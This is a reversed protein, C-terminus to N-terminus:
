FDSNSLNKRKSPLSFYFTSGMGTESEVWISGGHRDVIRRCIALGIGTGPYEERTHLRKFIEFIKDTYEPGIGIGNDKVSIIWWIGRQEASITIELPVQRRFKIANSILNQFVRVLQTRDVPLVPLDTVTIHAKSEEISVGLNKRAALVIENLDAPEFPKAQSTVRSFELLDNILANMTRGGDVIYDIFEDADTDLKGAYRLQLLQSYSTVMRLPERLDHSAVYAFQELETNSQKLKAVSDRLATETEKMETIDQGQAIVSIVTKGDKGYIPASNWLVFRETGDHGMIPIEVTEWREGTMARRIQEMSSKRTSMPFLIDLRHGIVRKSTMGTLIEFARNFRTIRFEPDWVIIPGNAHNILNELYQSTEQLELGTKVLQEYNYKTEDQATILEENIIGLEENKVRLAEEIKKRETIDVSVGFIRLPNGALDYVASGKANIWHITNSPHVIRFDMDFSTHTRVAESRAREVEPLDDPHVRSSFGVYNGPFTGPNYGYMTDLEPTWSVVGSRLDWDWIGVNASSQALRLREESQRLAEEAVRIQTSDFYYCIVGYVGDPLRMRHLEWEYSEVIATDNRPNTFRPSYFPEGTELTHRFRGIIGEAVDDPWLIHMAETLPRGILPRVNRFAGEQSGKNMHAIRFQSDVIYIGFPAREVLESFTRQSRSVSELLRQQEEGARKRETIDIVASLIHNESHITVIETSSLLYLLKGSKTRALIENNLTKGHKQTEEVIATRQEYDGPAFLGLEKSTHGVVEERRYGFLHVWSENVDVFQFDPARTIALASPNSHFIISFRQESERLALEAQKRETIDTHMALFGVFNGGTDRQPSVNALTWLISGDKRRLKRESSFSGNDKLSDRAQIVRQKEEEDVFDLSSRGVIEDRQYGLMDAMRQNMYTITGDPAHTAIGENATEVIGRFREESERLAEETKKRETIDRVVSVSGIIKGDADKVPAANVLRARLEGTAPMRVLEEEGRIIEGNLARLPQSEEPPRSSLDPHLIELSKVLNMVDVLAGDELGFSVLAEPNALTFRGETDAFWVEDPISRILANLREREQRIAQEAKKRETIDRSIGRYGRLGGTEDFFPVASTESWIMRGPSIIASAVLGNFPQRSEAMRSFFQLGREREGEPMLDFPTKGIMTEPKIGWYTEMQPSCYTFRGQPDVEWIFDNASEILARYKERSERLSNEASKRDTIDKATGFWETIRGEADMIPIARSFTWGVSGDTRLIRHEFEFTSRGEIANNIATMVQSRDEPLIYKELWTDSPEDTDPIFDRGRLHYMQRWDPSMRFVADSSATVLARFHAEREKLSRYLLDYPRDMGVAIIALFFFYFSFLRFIHGAFSFIDTSRAMFALAIESAITLGIAIILNNCVYRDFKQRNRYLLVAAGALILSIVLEAAVKFPTQGVGDIYTAPFIPVILILGVLLLTVAAFGGTAVTFRFKRNMMVLAALLSLALLFQMVIWFQSSLAGGGNPLIGVGPAAITHFFDLIAFFLFAIGIFLISSNDIIRRSKWVLLFIAASIVIVILEIVTHFLTYNAQYVIFLLLIIVFGVLIALSHNRIVNSVTYPYTRSSIFGPNDAPDPFGNSVPFPTAPDERM